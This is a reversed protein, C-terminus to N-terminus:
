DMTSVTTTVSSLSCYKKLYIFMAAAGLFFTCAHSVLLSPLHDFIGASRMVKTNRVSLKTGTLRYKGSPPVAEPRSSWDWIWDTPIDSRQVAQLVEGEHIAPIPLSAYENNPSHPSKPSGKSSSANSSMRSSGRSERQAELLLKEMQNSLGPLPTNRSQNLVDPTVCGSKQQQFHLEEWSENLINEGSGSRKSSEM